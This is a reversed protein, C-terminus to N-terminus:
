PTSRSYRTLTVPMGSAAAISRSRRPTTISSRRTTGFDTSITRGVAEPDFEHHFTTTPSPLRWSTRSSNERWPWRTWRSIRVAIPPTRSSRSL